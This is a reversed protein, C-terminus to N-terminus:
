SNLGTWLFPWFILPLCITLISLSDGSCWTFGLSAYLYSLNRTDMGIQFKSILNYNTILLSSYTKIHTLKVTIWNNLVLTVIDHKLTMYQLDKKHMDFTQYYFLDYIELRLFLLDTKRIIFLNEGTLEDDCKRPPLVCHSSCLIEFLINKCSLPTNCEYTTSEALLHLSTAEGNM